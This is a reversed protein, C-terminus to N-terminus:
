KLPPLYMGITPTSAVGGARSARSCPVRRPVTRLSAVFWPMARWAFSDGGARELLLWALGTGILVALFSRGLMGGFSVVVAGRRYIGVCSYLLVMAMAIGVSPLLLADPTGFSAIAPGSQANAHTAAAALAAGCLVGDALLQMLTLLPLRQSTSEFM